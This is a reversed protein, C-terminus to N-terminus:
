RTEDEALALTVPIDRLPCHPHVGKADRRLLLDAPKDHAPHHCRMALMDDTEVMVYEFFPCTFCSKVAHTM